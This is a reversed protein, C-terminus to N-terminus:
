FGSRLNLTVTRIETLEEMASRLGERGIGSGKTGGYPLPDSRFTPVDNIVLGGVNLAQAAKFVKDIDRTFVGAQLGYPTDEAQALGEEFSSICEVVAVPGFVEECGLRCSRPVGGIITPDFFAGKRGGGSFVTAGKARAEDIWEDVRKASAESILPGLDTSEELPDGLKLTSAKLILKELFEEYLTWHAYIRQVSICTQGSYTFAGYACREAAFDVDIGEDLVVAANGGLELIVHKKGAKERLAWGVKASGTFSLVKFREDRVLSEAVTNEMPLVSVASPPWGAELLVDALLLSCTPAQPPPKLVFTAGIAIAPAVKHVALNLPFNFPTIFLCPGRPVRQIFSARNEHGPTHDLKHFEGQFRKCEESAWELTFLARAVERRADKIPKGAELTITGTFIEQWSELIEKTKRLVKSREHAPLKWTEKFASEAFKAAQEADKPGALCVKSVPKGTFPNNIVSVESTSVKQGALILPRPQLSVKDETLNM